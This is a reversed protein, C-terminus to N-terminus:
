CTPPSHSFALSQVEPTNLFTVRIRQDPDSEISVEGQGGYPSVSYPNRENCLVAVRALVARIASKQLPVEVLGSPRGENVEAHCRGDKWRLHFGHDRSIALLKDVLGVVGRTPSEHARRLRESPSSSNNM